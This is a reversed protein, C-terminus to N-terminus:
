GALIVFFIYAEFKVRVQSVNTLHSYEQVYQQFIYESYEAIEGDWM